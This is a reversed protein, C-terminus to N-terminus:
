VGKVTMMIVDFVGANFIGLALIIVFCTGIALLMTWPLEVTESIM